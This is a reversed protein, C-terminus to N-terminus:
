SAVAAARPEAESLPATRQGLYALVIDELGVEDISWAAEAVPGNVRVLLTTQRETHREQIM